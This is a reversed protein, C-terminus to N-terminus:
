IYQLFWYQINELADDFQEQTVCRSVYSYQNELEDRWYINWCCEISEEEVEWSLTWDARYLPIIEDIYISYVDWWARADFVKRTERLSEDIDKAKIGTDKIFKDCAVLICDVADWQSYWRSTWSYTKYWIINLVENLVEDDEIQKIYYQLARETSDSIWEKRYKDNDIDMAKLLKSKKSTLNKASILDELSTWYVNKGYDRGWFIFLTPLYDWEKRPNECYSDQSITIKCNTM